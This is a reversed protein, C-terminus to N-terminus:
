HQAIKEFACGHLGGEADIQQCQHVAFRAGQREFLCQANVDLMAQGDDFAAGLEIQFFGSLAGM